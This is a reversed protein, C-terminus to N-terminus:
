YIYEDNNGDYVIITPLSFIKKKGSSIEEAEIIFNDRDVTKILKYPYFADMEWNCPPGFDFGEEILKLKVKNTNFLRIEEDIKDKLREYIYVPIDIKMIEM